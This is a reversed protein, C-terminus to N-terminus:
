AQRKAITEIIGEHKGLTQYFQLLDAQIRDVRSVLNLTDAKAEARAEKIEARVDRLGNQNLLIGLLIVLVPVGITIADHM